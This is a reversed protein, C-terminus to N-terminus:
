SPKKTPSSKRQYARRFFWFGGGATLLSGIGFFLRGLNQNWVYPLFPIGGELRPGTIAIYAGISSLLAFIVGGALDSIRGSVDTVLKVGALLFIVVVAILPWLHAADRMKGSLVSFIILTAFVIFVMGALRRKTIETM